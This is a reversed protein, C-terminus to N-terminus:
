EERKFTVRLVSYIDVGSSMLVIDRTIRLVEMVQAIPLNVAGGERKCIDVAVDKISVMM